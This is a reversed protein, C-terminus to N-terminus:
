LCEALRRTEKDVRAATKTLCTSPAGAGIGCRNFERGARRRHHCEPPAAVARESGRRQGGSPPDVKQVGHLPPKTQPLRAPDPLMHRIKLV